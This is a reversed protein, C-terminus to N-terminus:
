VKGMLFESDLIIFDPCCTPVYLGLSVNTKAHVSVALTPASVCQCWCCPFLRWASAPRKGQQLLSGVDADVQHLFETPLTVSPAYIYVYLNLDQFTVTLTWCFFETLQLAFLLDSWCGAEDRRHVSNNKFSFWFFLFQGKMTVLLCCAPRTSPCFLACVLSTGAPHRSTSTPGRIQESWTYILSLHHPLLWLSSSPLHRSTLTWHFHCENVGSAVSRVTRTEHNRGLDLQHNHSHSVTTICM